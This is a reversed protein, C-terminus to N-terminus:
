NRLVKWKGGVFIFVKNGIKAETSDKVYIEGKQLGIEGKRFYIPLEKKNSLVKFPEMWGENFNTHVGMSDCDFITTPPIYILVDKNDEALKKVNSSLKYYYSGLSHYYENYFGIVIILDIPLVMKKLELEIKGMQKRANESFESNPHKFLFETYSEVTNNQQAKEWDNKTSDCGLLFISVILFITRIFKKFKM